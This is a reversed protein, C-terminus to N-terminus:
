KRNGTDEVTGYGIQVLTMNKPSKGKGMGLIPEGRMESGMFVPKNDCVRGASVM